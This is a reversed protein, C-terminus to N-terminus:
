SAPATATFSASRRASRDAAVRRSVARRADAGRRGHLRDRESGALTGERPQLEVHVSSRPRRRRPRAASRRAPRAREVRMRKGRVDVEATGDHVSPSSAKSGSAASSWAIASRSPAAPSSPMPTPADAARSSCRARVVADVAARADSGRRAPRRRHERGPARRAERALAQTKEKLGAIVEDIERRAERVQTDLEETSSAAPVDGRAAQARRRAAADAGRRRRANRARARGAPARARARAPRPRDERPARGAASRAREPEAAGRRHGVSGPRAAGRDRARPQPGAIRLGAPLDARVHRSRLRVGGVRRGDTTSAYTKLADYHSTAIVTAGRRRFHDVVAVGLAGGEIPDTGSGVEDLLVLAPM